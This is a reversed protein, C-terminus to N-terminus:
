AFPSTKGAVSSIYSRYWSLHRLVRAARHPNPFVPIRKRESTDSNKSDAINIHPFPAVMFIPKDYQEIKDMVLEVSKEESEKLAKTQEPTFGLIESLRKSNFVGVPAQLIIADVNKDEILAILSSYMAPNETISIGAMDVPNRHSWRPPLYTDLKDLTSEDLSIIELGEKECSEAAVAGLGGGMTLIAVRNGRPLPQNLLAFSVDCLEQDDSVRIVGSQMFAANYVEDSGALAGTHSKIAKASEETGGSKLVVIPKNLTTERALRFFRRGERLGEIYATIVRTTDDQALFELYDELRLNAENGTSVFKSFGIGTDNGYRIIRMCMNGSQSLLAVPGRLIEGRTWNFTSVQSNSDAHGMTNPGVFCIDGQRAIEIIENELKSGENNTEAFGASIIVATKVGSTVCERLIDPVRVAAVVIVALDVPGPVDSITAYAKFGLVDTFSPNVPYIRKGPFNFLSQMIGYGWSGPNNSAGIVAVSGPSFLHQLKDQRNIKM